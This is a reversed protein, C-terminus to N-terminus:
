AEKKHELAGIRTEHDRLTEDQQNNHEWLRKHSERAHRKQDEIEETNRKIETGQQKMTLNLEVINRNLALIPKGVTFFLGVIVVLATVVTWEM